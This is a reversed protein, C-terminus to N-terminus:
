ISKKSPKTKKKYNLNLKKDSSIRELEITGKYNHDHDVCYKIIEIKKEKSVKLADVMYVM